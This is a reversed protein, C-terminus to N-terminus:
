VRRTGGERRAFVVRSKGSRRTVPASGYLARLAHYDRRELTDSAEALLTALVTRASAKLFGLLTVRRDEIRQWADQPKSVVDTCDPEGIQELGYRRRLLSAIHTLLGDCSDELVVAYTTKVGSM